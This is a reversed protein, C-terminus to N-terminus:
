STTSQVSTLNIGVAMALYTHTVATGKEYSEPPLDEEPNHSIGNHEFFTMSTPIVDTSALTRADHGPMSHGPYAKLGLIRAIAMKVKAIQGSLPVNKTESVLTKANAEAGLIPLIRELELDLQYRISLSTAPDIHRLDVKCHLGGDPTLCFDTVTYCARGTGDHEAIAERIIREVTAPITLAADFQAQDVSVIDGEPLADEMWRVDIDKREKLRKALRRMITELQPMFREPVAYEVDQEPTITTYGYSVTKGDVVPTSCRIPLLGDAPLGSVAWEQALLTSFEAAGILADRRYWPTRPSVDESRNPPTGGTHAAEGFFRLLVKKRRILSDPSTRVTRLNAIDIRERVSGGIHTVIGVDAGDERLVRSQEIHDEHFAAIELWEEDIGDPDKLSPMCLHRKRIAPRDVEDGIREWIDEKFRYRLKGVPGGNEYKMNELEKRTIKGTAITSGLCPHGTSPSEEARWVAVTYSLVPKQGSALMKVLFEMASAVGAVGDYKGGDPVSDLHSGAMVTKSADQGYYTIFMNGIADKWIRYGESPVKHTEFLGLAIKETHDFAKNETESFAICNRGIGKEPDPVRDPPVDIAAIEDIFNLGFSPRSAAM